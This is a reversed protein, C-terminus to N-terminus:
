GIVKKWATIEVSQFLGALAYPDAAAFTEAEARTAVDLVLLSGIMQGAEDLLPGGFLIVGTAAGYALHAERNAKRVELKGPADKCYLVYAM